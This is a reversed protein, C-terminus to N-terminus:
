IPYKHHSSPKESHTTSICDVREDALGELKWAGSFIYNTCYHLKTTSWASNNSSNPVWSSDLGPQRPSFRYYLLGWGVCRVHHVTCLLLWEIARATAPSLDNQSLRELNKFVHAGSAIKPGQFFILNPGRGYLCLNARTNDCLVEAGPNLAFLLINETADLSLVSPAPLCFCFLLSGFSRQTACIRAM